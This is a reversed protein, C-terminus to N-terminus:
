VAILERIQEEEGPAFRTDDEPEEDKQNPQTLIEQEVYLRTLKNSAYKAVVGGCFQKGQKTTIGSLNLHNAIKPWSIPIWGSQPALKGDIIEPYEGYRLNIITELHRIENPEIILEYIPNGKRNTRDTQIPQWGFPADKGCLEGWSGPITRNARKADFTNQIREITNNRELEAFAAGVTLMAWGIATGTDINLNLIHCSVKYKQFDKVTKLIAQANRGIRDLEGVVLHKVEGRQAAQLISLGGNRQHFAKKYGSVKEEIITYEAFVPDIHSQAKCWQICKADQRDTEQHNTSVREYIVTPNM